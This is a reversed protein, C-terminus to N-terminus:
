SLPVVRMAKALTLGLVHIDGSILISIPGDFPQRQVLEFDDGVAIGCESLNAPGVSTLSVKGRVM